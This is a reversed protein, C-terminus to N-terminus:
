EKRYWNEKNLLKCAPCQSVQKLPDALYAFHCYECIALQSSPPLGKKRKATLHSYIWVGFIFFLLAGLYLLLATGVHVEIM